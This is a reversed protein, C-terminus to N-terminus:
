RISPGGHTGSLGCVRARRHIIQAGFPPHGSMTITVHGWHPDTIHFSYHNVYETKKELNTIVGRASRKVKWVVQFLVQFGVALSPREVDGTPHRRIPHDGGDIWVRPVPVLTGGAPEVAVLPV